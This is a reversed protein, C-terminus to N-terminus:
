GFIQYIIFSVIWALGTTYVVTFLAWKWAGTEKKIAAIAAVCPFYILVFMLLSFASAKTFVKEGKKPGSEYVDNKLQEALQMEGSEDSADIHNIVGLTSVVVEKAAVGSILGVGIKWDFGM